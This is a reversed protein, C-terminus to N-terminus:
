KLDNIVGNILNLDSPIIWKINAKYFIALPIIAGSRAGDMWKPNNPMLNYLEELTIDYFVKETGKIYDEISVMYKHIGDDFLTNKELNFKTLLEFREEGGTFIACDYDKDLKVDKKNLVNRFKVKFIYKNDEKYIGGCAISKGKKTFETCKKTIPEEYVEQPNIYEPLELTYVLGEEIKAYGNEDNMDELEYLIKYTDNINPQKAPVQEDSFTYDKDVEIKPNTTAVVKYNNDIMTVYMTNVVESLPKEEYTNNDFFALLDINSTIKHIPSFSFISVISIILLLLVGRWKFNKKKLLKM